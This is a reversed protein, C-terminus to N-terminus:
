SFGIFLSSLIAAFPENLVLQITTANVVKIDKIPSVRSALPSAMEKSQVRLISAKVDDANMKSGDHFSVNPHLNFTYTLGNSSVNWSKALGPQVSM